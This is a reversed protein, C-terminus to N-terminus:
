PGAASNAQAEVQNNANPLLSTDECSLYVVLALQPTLSVPLRVSGCPTAARAQASVDM